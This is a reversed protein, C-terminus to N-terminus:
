YEESPLNQRFSKNVNLKYAGKKWPVSGTIILALGHPMAIFGYIGKGVDQTLIGNGTSKWDALSWALSGTALLGM